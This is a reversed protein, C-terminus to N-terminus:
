TPAVRMMNMSRPSWKTAMFEQEPILAEPGAGRPKGLYFPPLPPHKLSLRLLRENKELHHSTRCALDTSRCFVIAKPLYEHLQQLAAESVEL